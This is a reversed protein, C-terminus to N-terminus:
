PLTLDDVDRPYIIWVDFPGNTNLINVPRLTGVVRPITQGVYGAPDFESVQGKTIINFPDDCGQGVDLKWQGYTDFDDDLPCLVGNEVAVLAAEARELEIRSTLWTPDIVVPEPLQAEDPVRDSAVTSPFGIETLGNFESVGGGVETILQGVRITDGNQDEPRSFTFVFVHDYAGSVCPPTGDTDACQVDSVTYGQAYSGTAIMRGADGYRSGRVVVQKQELPSRSYADPAAEDVPTSIDALQPDRFWLLPSTGAAFTPSDGRTNEAWLFTPGFVPPLSVAVNDAAGGDVNITALVSGSDIRPTLSGLYHAYFDVTGSFGTDDDGDADLATITVVLDRADDDLRDDESGPDVPSVLDVRFSTTGEIPPLDDVCSAALALGLAVAAARSSCRAFADM